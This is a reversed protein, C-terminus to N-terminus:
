RKAREQMDIVEQLMRRYRQLTAADVEDEAVCGDEGSRHLCDRYRCHLPGVGPFHERVNEPTLGAPLFTRIGPSDVIEAGPALEHISAGTTTHQGTKWFESVEGIPGVDADPLLAAGLSTKGVGSHGVFAWPGGGAHELLFQAVAEVGQGDHPTCSMVEVGLERRWQLDAAAEEPVGLDSKTLVIALELGFMNAAVHYRDMLGPRYAPHDASAVVILGQLNSAIVQERGKFDVRWLAREREGVSVIKGGTGKAEVFEVHDGVVARHGSLFCVVDEGEGDPRVLVRRGRIAIVRGPEGAEAM